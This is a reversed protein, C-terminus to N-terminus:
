KSGRKRHGSEQATGSAARELLCTVRAPESEKRTGVRLLRSKSHGESALKREKCHWPHM